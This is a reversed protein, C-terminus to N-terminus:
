RRRREGANPGVGDAATGTTTTGDEHQLEYETEGVRGDSGIRGVKEALARWRAEDSPDIPAPPSTASADAVKPEPEAAEWAVRAV